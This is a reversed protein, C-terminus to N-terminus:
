EYTTINARLYLNHTSTRHKSCLFSVIIKKLFVFIIEYGKFTAAYQLPMDVFDSIIVNAGM